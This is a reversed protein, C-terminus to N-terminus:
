LSDWVLLFAVADPCAPAARRQEPYVLLAAIFAFCFALMPCGAFLAGKTGEQTLALPRLGENSLTFSCRGWSRIVSMFASEEDSAPRM